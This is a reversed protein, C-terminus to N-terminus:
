CPKVRKGRIDLDVNVYITLTVLDGLDEREMDLLLFSSGSFLVITQQTGILNLLVQM